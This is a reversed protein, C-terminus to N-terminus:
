KEKKLYRDIQRVRGHFYTGLGKTWHDWLLKLTDLSCTQLDNCFPLEMRGVWLPETQNDSLDTIKEDGCSVQQSSRWKLRRGFLNEEDRRM